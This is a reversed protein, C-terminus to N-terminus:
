ELYTSFLVESIKQDDIHRRPSLISFLLVANMLENAYSQIMCYEIPEGGEQKNHKGFRAPTMFTAVGSQHAGFFPLRFGQASYFDINALYPRM